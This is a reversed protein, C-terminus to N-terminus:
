KSINSCDVVECVLLNAWYFAAVPGWVEFSFAGEGVVPHPAAFPTFADWLGFRFSLSQVLGPDIPENFFKHDLSLDTLQIATPKFALGGVAIDLAQIGWIISGVPLHFNYLIKGSSPIVMNEVSPLAVLRAMHCNSFELPAVLPLVHSNWVGSYDRWTPSLALSSVSM